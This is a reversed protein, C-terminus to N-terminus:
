RAEQILQLLVFFFILFVVGFTAGDWFHKHYSNKRMDALLSCGIVGFTTATMAWLLAEKSVKM